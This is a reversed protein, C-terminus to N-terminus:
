IAKSDGGSEQPRDGPNVGPLELARLGKPPALLPGFPGKMTIINPHYYTLSKERWTNQIKPQNPLEASILYSIPQPITAHGTISAIALGSKSSTKLVLLGPFTTVPRSLTRVLEPIMITLM